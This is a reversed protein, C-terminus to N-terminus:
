DGWGRDALGEILGPDLACDGADVGVGPVHDKGGAFAFCPLTNEM